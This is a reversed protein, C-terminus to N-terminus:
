KVENLKAYDGHYKQAAENYALAAQEPTDFYGLSIKKKDIGIRANWKGGSLPLLEFLESAQNTDTM